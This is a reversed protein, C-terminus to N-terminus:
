KNRLKALATSVVVNDDYSNIESLVSIIKGQEFGLSTLLNIIELKNDNNTYNYTYPPLKIDSIIRNAGKAGLGRIKSLFGINKSEIAQYLIELSSNSLINLATQPGIGNIKILSEFFLQTSKDEFGYLTISSEKYITSIFLSVETNESLDKHLLVKYGVGSNTIVAGNTYLGSLYAIM